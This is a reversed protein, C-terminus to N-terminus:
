AGKGDSWVLRMNGKWWGGGLEHEKELLGWSVGIGKDDVVRHGGGRNLVVGFEM